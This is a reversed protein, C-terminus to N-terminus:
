SATKVFAEGGGTAEVAQTNSFIQSGRRQLAAALGNLYKLPHFQAQNQYRLCPGSKFGIVGADPMRNVKASAARAAELEDDIVSVPQGEGLFLYGDVREFRCDIHEENCITEIRDIARAHSDRALRAGDPGHLRVIEKFTADIVYSLHATTVATQGNGVRGTDVVIVSRGESALLYATTLGSIGAGVVCVDATADQSLPDTTLTNATDLWLSTSKPM